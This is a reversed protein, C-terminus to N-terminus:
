LPDNFDNGTAFNSFVKSFTSPTTVIAEDLSSSALASNGSNRCPKNEKKKALPRLPPSLEELNTFRAVSLSYTVFFTTFIDADFPIM